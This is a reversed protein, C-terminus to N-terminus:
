PLTWPITAPVPTLFYMDVWGVIANQEFNEEDFGLDIWMGSVAGYDAITGYGYGPIYVRQGRMMRFWKLSVGVIGKTLRAGSATTYSCRNDATGLRCPSYSTARVHIKRWYEITGDPTNESRTVVKTGYGITQPVPNAATWDSDTLRSVEQGDEYHVRERTVQVGYHGPQSAARQDLELEPDPAFQSDYPILTQNLLIEERVRVVRIRGDGPLPLNDAPQSYDLGQLPLGAEALAAGVTAAASRVHFENGELQIVLPKAPTYAIMMEPEIQRGPDPSLLDGPGMRVGADWLARATSPGHSLVKQQKGNLELTIPIPQFIQLVIPTQVPLQDDLLITEGNRLLTDGETLLIGAKALLQAPTRELGAISRLQGDEWLYAQVARRITIKGNFPVPQELSPLVQDHPGVWIRASFLAQSVTWAFPRVQTIKGNDDIMVPRSFFITVGAAIVLFVAAAILIYKRIM